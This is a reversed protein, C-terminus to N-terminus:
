EEASNSGNRISSQSACGGDPSDIGTWLMGLVVVAGVSGLFTCGSRYAPGKEASTM